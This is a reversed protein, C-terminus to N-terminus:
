FGGGAGGGGGGGGGGGYGGGSSSSPATSVSGMSSALNGVSSIGSAGAYWTPAWMASGSQRAEAFTEKILDDIEDKLGFAVAWVTLLDPTTIWPLRTKTQEVAEDVTHAKKLEYRLTNRYALAMGLAQAGERDGTELADVARVHLREREDMARDALAMVHRHADSAVAVQGMRWAILARACHALVFAPDAKVAANLADMAGGRWRLFLDLGREYAALADASSTSVPLGKLDSYTM